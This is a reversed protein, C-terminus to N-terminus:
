PDRPCQGLLATGAPIGFPFQASWGANVMAISAGPVFAVFQGTPTSAWVRLAARSCGTATILEDETGGGFVFTGASTGPRDGSTIAGYGAVTRAPRSAFVSLRYAGARGGLISLQDAVIVNYRRTGAATFTLVADNGLLGREVEVTSSDLVPGPADARTVAIVADALTSEATIAVTQGERLDLSYTDMDGPHDFSGYTVAGLALPRRDDPDPIRLMPYDSTVEYSVNGTGSAVLVYPLRPVTRVTVSPTAETAGSRDSVAGTADYLTLRASPSDARITVEASTPTRLLYAQQDYRTGLQVRDGGVMPTAIAGYRRPGLEGPAGALQARMREVAQAGGLALTFSTSPYRLQVIGIVEGAESLMAGGSGGPASLADTQVFPLDLPGGIRVRSLLGRSFTPTPNPQREAPYGILYVESGVAVRTPDGFTLPQVGPVEGVRLLAVDALLDLAVVPVDRLVRGDPFRVRDAADFPWVVHADTLLYGGDILIGSGATTPTEIYAIAPASRAYLTEAGRSPAAEADRGLALAVVACALLLVARLRM